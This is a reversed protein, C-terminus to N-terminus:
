KEKEKITKRLDYYLSARWGVKDDGKTKMENQFWCYVRVVEVHSPIVFDFAIEDDEGPEIDMPKEFIKKRQCLLPWRFRDEKREKEKLAAALEGAVSSKKDLPLIQGVTALAEKVVLRVHGTNTLIIRNHLLKTKDPLEIHSVEQKINVHPYHQREKIFINYTWVGGVIVALITIVSQVAAIKEKFEKFTM